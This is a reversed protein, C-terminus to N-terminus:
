LGPRPTIEQVKTLNLEHIGAGITSTIKLALVRDTYNCTTNQSLSNIYQAVMTEKPEGSNVSYGRRLKDDEMYYTVEYESNDWETWGLTLPFGVAGSPVITQSMQADRSIWYIANNINRSAITYNSNRTSQTIIQVTAMSAGLAIIGTVLMAVLVELLTFGRQCKIIRKFKRFIM